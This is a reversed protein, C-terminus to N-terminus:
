SIWLGGFAVHTSEIVGFVSVLTFDSPAFANHKINTKPNLLLTIAVVDRSLIDVNHSDGSESMETEPVFETEELIKLAQSPSM